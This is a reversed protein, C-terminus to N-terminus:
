GIGFSQRQNIVPIEPVSSRGADVSIRSMSKKRHGANWADQYSGWQPDTPFLKPPQRTIDVPRLLSNVLTIYIPFLVIVALVTLLAYRGVKGWVRRRHQARAEVSM